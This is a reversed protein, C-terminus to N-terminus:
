LPVHGLIRAEWSSVSGALNWRRETVLHVTGLRVRREDSPRGNGSSAQKLDHTLEWLRSPATLVLGPHHDFGALVALAM